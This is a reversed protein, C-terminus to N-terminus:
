ARPELPIRQADDVVKGMIRIRPTVFCEGTLNPFKKYIADSIERISPGCGKPRTFTGLRLMGNQTMQYIALTKM